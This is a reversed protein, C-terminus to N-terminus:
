ERRSKPLLFVLPLGIGMLVTLLLVASKYSGSTDYQWGMIVPAAVGAVVSLSQMLGAIAGFSRTGFYVSCLLPRAPIGMGFSIGFLFAYVVSHWYSSAYALMLLGLVGSVILVLVVIRRDIFDLLWGAGLRGIGSLLSFSAFTSAAQASTFGISEFYPIQHLFMASPGMSHLGLVITLIWFTKTRFAERVSLGSRTVNGPLSQGNQPSEDGDPLYGYPEPSHRAFLGAIIGVIAAGFALFVLTQRWGWVEIAFILIPMFPGAVIPGSFMVGMARGRLRNFWNAVAATFPVGVLCSMGLAIVLYAVYFQYLQQVGSLFLIGVCAVIGGFIIILRPGFRDVIFGIFPTAISGEIRQLGAAVSFQARTWGMSSTIPGMFASMGYIFAISMYFHVVMHGAVIYWGPFIKKGLIKL